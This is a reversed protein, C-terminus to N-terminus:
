SKQAPRVHIETVEATAPLSVVGVVIRAVDEPQLLREPRYPKGESASVQEQMPTATRGPYVSTVRVGQANVEQRLADALGKLAHKTAAYQLTAESPNSVISSNIFVVDGRARQLLPLLRRTLSYPALVNVAFHEQFAADDAGEIRARRM